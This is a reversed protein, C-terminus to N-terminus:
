NLKKFDYDIAANIHKPLININYKRTNFLRDVWVKKWIGDINLFLSVYSLGNNLDYEGRSENPISIQQAKLEGSTKLEIQGVKDICISSIGVIESPSLVVWANRGSINSITVVKSIGVRRIPDFPAAARSVAALELPNGKKFGFISLFSWPGNIHPQEIQENKNTVYSFPTIKEIQKQEEPSAINDEDFDHESNTM